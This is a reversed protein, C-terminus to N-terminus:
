NRHAACLTFDASVHVRASAGFDVVEDQVTVELGPRGTEQVTSSRFTV